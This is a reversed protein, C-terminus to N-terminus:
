TAVDPGLYGLVKCPLRDGGFMEVYARPAAPPEGSENRLWRLPKAADLIPAGNLKPHANVDHWESLKGGAVYTGDAFAGSFLPEQAVTAAVVGALWACCALGFCSARGTM